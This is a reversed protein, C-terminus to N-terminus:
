CGAAATFNRTPVSEPHGKWWSRKYLLFRGIELWELWEREAKGLALTRNANAVFPLAILLPHTREAANRLHPVVNFTNVQSTNYWLLRERTVMGRVLRLRRLENELIQFDELIVDLDDMSDAKSPLLHNGPLAPTLNANSYLKRREIERSGDKNDGM